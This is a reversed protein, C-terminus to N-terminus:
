PSVKDLKKNSKLNLIPRVNKTYIKIWCSACYYDPLQKVDARKTKCVCCKVMLSCRRCFLWYLFGVCVPM